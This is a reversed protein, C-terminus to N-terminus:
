TGLYFGVSKNEKEKKLQNHSWIKLYINELVSFSKETGKKEQQVSLMTQTLSQPVLVSSLHAVPVLCNCVQACFIMDSFSLPLVHEVLLYRSVVELGSYQLTRVYFRTCFVSLSSICCLHKLLYFGPCCTLPLVDLDWRDSFPYWAGNCLGSSM